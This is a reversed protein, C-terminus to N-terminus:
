TLKFLKRGFTVIIKQHLEQLCMIDARYKDLLEQELLKHRYNWDKYKEPVYTYVQPWMYSPSLLNYSLLTFLPKASNKLVNAGIPIFQRALM